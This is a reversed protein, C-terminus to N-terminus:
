RCFDPQWAEWFPYLLEWQVKNWTRAPRESKPRKTWRTTDGSNWNAPGDFKRQKQHIFRYFCKQSAHQPSGNRSRDLSRNYPNEPPIPQSQIQHCSSDSHLSRLSPNEFALLQIRISCVSIGCGSFCDVQFRRHPDGSKRQKGDSAFDSGVINTRLRVIEIPCPRFLRLRSELTLRDIFPNPSSRRRDRAQDDRRSRM